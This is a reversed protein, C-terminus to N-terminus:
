GVGIHAESFLAYNILVLKVVIAGVASATTTSSAPRAIGEDTSSDSYALAIILAKGTDDRSSGGSVDGDFEVRAITGHSLRAVTDLNDRACRTPLWLKGDLAANGLLLGIVCVEYRGREESL